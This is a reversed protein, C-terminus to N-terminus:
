HIEPVREEEYSILVRHVNSLQPTSDRVLVPILYVIFYKTLCGNRCVSLLQPDSSGRSPSKPNRFKRFNIGRNPQLAYGWKKHEDCIPPLYLPPFFKQHRGWPPTEGTEARSAALCGESVDSRHFTALVRFNLLIFTVMRSRTRAGIYSDNIASYLIRARQILNWPDGSQACGQVGGEQVKQHHCLPKHALKIHWIRVRKRRWDMWIFM